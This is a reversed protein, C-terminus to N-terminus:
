TEHLSFENRLMVHSQILLVITGGNNANGTGTTDRLNRSHPVFGPEYKLDSQIFM